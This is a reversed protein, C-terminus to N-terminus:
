SGLLGTAYVILVGGTWLLCIVFCILGILTLVLPWGKTWYHYNDVGEGWPLLYAVGSFFVLLGLGAPFFIQHWDPVHLREFGYSLGLLIPVLWLSGFHVARNHGLYHRLPTQPLLVIITWIIGTVVVAILHFGALAIYLREM